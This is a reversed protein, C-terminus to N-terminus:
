DRLTSLNLYRPSTRPGSPGSTTTGRLEHQQGAEAPHVGPQPGHHSEHSVLGNCCKLLVKTLKLSYHSAGVSPESSVKRDGPDQVSLGRRPAYTPTVSAYMEPLVGLPHIRISRHSTIAKPTHGNQYFCGSLKITLPRFFYNWSFELTFGDFKACHYDCPASGTCQHTSM